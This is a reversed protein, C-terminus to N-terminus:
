DSIHLKDIKKDIFVSKEFSCTNQTVNRVCHDLRDIYCFNLHGSCHMVLQYQWHCLLCMTWFHIQYAHSLCVTSQFRTGYLYKLWRKPWPISLILTFGDVAISTSGCLFSFLNSANGSNIRNWKALACEDLARSQVIKEGVFFWFRLKRICKESAVKWKMRLKNVLNQWQNCKM